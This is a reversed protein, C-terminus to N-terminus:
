RDGKLNGEYLSRSTVTEYCLKAADADPRCDLRFVPVAAVMVAITDQRMRCYERSWGVGSSASLLAALARAVDERVMGNRDEQRLKVFAGVPFVLNKYCPTKGSWPTGYVLVRGDRIGVAPCDDNVLVTGDINELWLHSHTSKGTGSKGLFLYARGGCAVASAHFLLTQTSLASLTFLQILFYDICRERVATDGSLWAKAHRFNLDCHLEALVDGTALVRWSISAATETREYLCELEEHVLRAVPRGGKLSAFPPVITLDFSESGAVMGDTAVAFAGYRRRMREEMADDVNYIVFHREAVVYRRATMRVIFFNDARLWILM